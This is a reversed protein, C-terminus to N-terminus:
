SAVRLSSLDRAAADTHDGSFGLNIAKRSAYYEDWLECVSPEQEWGQTISDGDMLLDIDGRRQRVENLKAHHRLLWWDDDDEVPQVEPTFSAPNKKMLM